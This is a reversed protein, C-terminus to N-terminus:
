SAEPRKHPLPQLAPWRTIMRRRLDACLRGTAVLAPVDGAMHAVVGLRHAVRERASATGWRWDRHPLAALHDVTGREARQVLADGRILWSACADALDAHPVAGAVAAYAAEAEAVLAPPPATVCWCTPFGIRLYALEVAGSGLAAQEFDVFRVGGATYLDNGACPDGHLLARAPTADLRDVLQRLEASVSSAVAADLSGALGVFSAVDGVTPGSWAPLLGPGVPASHLHALATAYHVLWDEPVPRRDLHELVVVREQPDAGLVRPAVRAALRLATVERAYRDGAGPGDVFRKVVVAGGAVEARWVVSRPSSPLRVASRPPGLEGRLREGFLEQGSM